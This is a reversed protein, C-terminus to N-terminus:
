FKEMVDMIQRRNRSFEFPHNCFFRLPRQAWIRYATGPPPPEQKGRLVLKMGKGGTFNRRARLKKPQPSEEEPLCNHHFM